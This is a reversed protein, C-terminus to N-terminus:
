KVISLLLSKSGIESIHLPIIFFLKYNEVLIISTITSASIKEVLTFTM